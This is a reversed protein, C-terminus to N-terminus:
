SARALCDHAARAAIGSVGEASGSRRDLGSNKRDHAAHRNASLAGVFARRWYDLAGNLNGRDNEVAGLNSYQNAMGEKRGLEENLVLSKKLYAEAADLNGRTKEIAGLNGYQNAVGEKRGLEEEIALSKKHYAEAADLNGRTEEILGLNGYQIAMGEKRDLAEDIALSKQHYAEAADLNGRTQEILGLNGYQNAMGEKRGLEENLALSKKHYAEAADLNGRTQEILGLNGYDSAMGEKRGLEENLALSKKLYAEAADLNGRTQEILGLNGYQNAMGEKRGLEENLALSKQHYAEAADLNGRTQEILGLNGYAVAILTKDASVNGLSLVKEYATRARELEGTRLFLHGLQNHAEADDPSCGVAREYATISKATRDNFTILGASKYRQAADKSVPDALSIVLDYADDTDGQMKLIAARRDIEDRSMALRVIEDVFEQHTYEGLPLSGQAMVEAQQRVDEANATNDAIKELLQTHYDLKQDMEDIKKDRLGMKSIDNSVQNLSGQFAILRNDISAVIKKTEATLCLAEMLLHPELKDVFDPEEMAAELTAAAAYEATQRAIDGGEIKLFGAFPEHEVIENVLHRAVADPWEAEYGVVKAIVGPEPWYKPGYKIILACAREITVVDIEHGGVNKAWRADAAIKNAVNRFATETTPNKTKLTRWFSSIGAASLGAASGCVAAAGLPGGGSIILGAAGVHALQQCHTPSLGM